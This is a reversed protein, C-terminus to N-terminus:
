GFTVFYQLEIADKGYRNLFAHTDPTYQTVNYVCWFEGDVEDYCSGSSESDHYGMCLDLNTKRKFDAQLEEYASLLKPPVDDMDDYSLLQYIYGCDGDDLQIRTDFEALTEPCIKSLLVNTITHASNSGYGMSM